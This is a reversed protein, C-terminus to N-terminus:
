LSHLLVTCRLEWHLVQKAVVKQTKFVLQGSTKHFSTPGQKWHITSNANM